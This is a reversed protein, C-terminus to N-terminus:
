PLQGVWFSVVDSLEQRNKWFHPRTNPLHAHQYLGGGHAKMEASFRRGMDALPSHESTVHLIPMHSLGGKAALAMPNRVQSLFNWEEALQERGVMALVGASMFRHLDAPNVPSHELEHVPLIEVYPDILVVGALREDESAIGLAAPAAVGCAVLLVPGHSSWLRDRHGTEVTVQMAQRIDREIGRLSFHGDSGAEGRHRLVVVEHGALWLMQALDLNQQTGPLDNLILVRRRAAPAPFHLAQLKVRGSMFTSGLEAEITTAITTSRPLTGDAAAAAAALDAVGAHLFSPAAAPTAEKDQVPAPADPLPVAPPLHAAAEALQAVLPSVVPPPVPVPKAVLSTIRKPAPVAPSGAVPAEPPRHPIPPEDDFGHAHREHTSM